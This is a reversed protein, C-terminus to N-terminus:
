SKRTKVHCALFFTCAVRSSSILSNIAFQRLIDSEKEKDYQLLTDHIYRQIYDLYVYLSFIYLILISFICGYLIGIFRDNNIIYIHLFFKVLYFIYLSQKEEDYYNRTMIRHQLWMKGITRYVLLLDCWM